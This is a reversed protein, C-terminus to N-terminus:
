GHIKSPYIAPNMGRAVLNDHQIRNNLARQAALFKAQMEISKGYADAAKQQTVPNRLVRMATKPAHRLTHPKKHKHKM